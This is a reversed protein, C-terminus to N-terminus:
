QFLQLYTAFVRLEPSLYTVFTGSMTFFCFYIDPATDSSMDLYIQASEPQNRPISNYIFTFLELFVVVFITM